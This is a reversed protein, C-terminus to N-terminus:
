KVDGCGSRGGGLLDLKMYVDATTYGPDPPLPAYEFGLTEYLRLAVVLRRNSVLVVRAAGRSRAIEIAAVTLRRGVGKGRVREVVALKALEFTAADLRIIACTGVVVDGELAFLIEGGTDVIAGRPDDLHKADAPELLGYGALWEYNLRAFAPAYEDGYAVIRFQANSM